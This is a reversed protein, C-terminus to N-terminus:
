GHLTSRREYQFSPLTRLSVSAFRDFHGSSSTLFKRARSLPPTANGNSSSANRMTRERGCPWTAATTPVARVSPKSRRAPVAPRRLAARQRRRHHQRPNEIGARLQHRRPAQAAHVGMDEQAHEGVLDLPVHTAHEGRNKSSWSGCTAAWALAALRLHARRDARGCSGCGARRGPWRPRCASGRGFDERLGCGNPFAGQMEEADLESMGRGLLRVGEFGGIDFGCLWKFSRGDAIRTRRAFGAAPCASV